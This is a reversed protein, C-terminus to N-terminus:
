IDALPETCERPLPSEIPILSVLAGSPLNKAKLKFTEYQVFIERLHVNVENAHRFMTLVKQGITKVREQSYNPPLTSSFIRGTRDILFSGSPPQVLPHKFPKIFFQTVFGM